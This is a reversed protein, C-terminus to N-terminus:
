AGEQYVILGAVDMNGDPAWVIGTTMPCPTKNAIAEAVLAAERRSLERAIEVPVLQLTRKAEHLLEPVNPQDQNQETDSEEEARRPAKAQVRFGLPEYRQKWAALSKYPVLLIILCGEKALDICDKLSCVVWRGARQMVWRKAGCVVFVAKWQRKMMDRDQLALRTGVLRGDLKREHEDYADLMRKAELGDVLGLILSQRVVHRQHNLQALDQEYQARSYM